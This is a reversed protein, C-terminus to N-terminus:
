RIMSPTSLLHPLFTGDCFDTLIYRTFVKGPFLIKCRDLNMANAHLLNFKLRLGKGFSLNHVRGFQFLKCIVSEFPLFNELHTSFLKAKERLIKLVQVASM